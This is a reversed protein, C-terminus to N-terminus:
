AVFLIQLQPHLAANLLTGRLEDVHRQPLIYVVRWLHPFEQRPGTSGTQSVADKEEYKTIERRFTTVHANPM